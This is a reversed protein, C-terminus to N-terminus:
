NKDLAGLENFAELLILPNEITWYFDIFSYMLRELLEKLLLIRRESREEMNSAYIAIMEHLFNLLSRKDAANPLNSLVIRGFDTVVSDFTVAQWGLIKMDCPDNRINRKFMLKSRVFRGHILTFFTTKINNSLDAEMNRLKTLLKIQLDLELNGWVIANM